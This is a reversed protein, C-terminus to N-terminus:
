MTIYVIVIFINVHEYFFVKFIIIIYYYLIIIDYFVGKYAPTPEFCVFAIKNVSRVYLFTAGGRVRNVKERKKLVEVGGGGGGEGGEWPLCVKQFVGM